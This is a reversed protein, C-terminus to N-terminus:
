LAITLGGDAVLVAGTVYTNDPSTLWDVTAAIESPQAARGIPLRGGEACLDRFWTTELENEGDVISMPTSVFGPAVANVLVDRRGFEIALARTVGLLGTKSAGYALSEPASALAHVSSISVIRGWGREAMGRGLAAALATPAYLNVTLTHWFTEPDFGAAANSEFIGAVNVLVDVPPSEAALRDCLAAVADRDSLDVRDFSSVLGDVPNRDVGITDVGAAHFREVVSRGIGSAAGTVVARRRRDASSGSPGSM